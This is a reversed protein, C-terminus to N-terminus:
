PEGPRFAMGSRSLFSSMVEVGGYTEGCMEGNKTGMWPRQDEVQIDLPGSGM